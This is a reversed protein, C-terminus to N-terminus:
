LKRNLMGVQVDHVSKRDALRSPTNDSARKKAERLRKGKIKKYVLENHEELWEDYYKPPKFKRGDYVVYDDPYVDRAYKKLWDMGIGNRRSMTTYEPQCEHVQGTSVEMREYPKLGFEDPQNALDGNRKKMVYRATYAASKFTLKGITSFGYPWLRSLIDSTYLVDGQSNQSFPQKDPFDFNFLVAHYHPRGISPYHKLCRCYTASLGCVRCCSGYEGCHYYRIGNKGDMGIYKFEQRLKKAFLQFDRKDVSYKSIWKIPWYDSRESKPKRAMPCDWRGRNHLSQEDFTLTIFTNYEYLSAEHMCRLAWEGSKKLRCGSCQGCGITQPKDEYGQTPSFVISRKGSPNVRRSQFGHLPFFCPM